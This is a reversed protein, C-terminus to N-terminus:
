NENVINGILKLVDDKGQGTQSSVAFVNDAGIKLFAAIDAIRAKIDRKNIKDSKTAIVNFSLRNKYLYLAMEADLDTPTHRIDVLMIVRKLGNDGTLYKDILGSWKGQEGRSLKAYGYGPLDTFIFDGFDFFNVLRTKGPTGSTKVLKYNGATMNIFSSKGVNSRGVVAIQPRKDKFFGGEDAASTIFEAKRIKYM